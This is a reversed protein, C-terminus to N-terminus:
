EFPKVLMSGKIICQCALRIPTQQAYQQAVEAEKKTIAGMEVLTNLEKDEMYTTYKDKDWSDPDVKSEFEAAENPITELEEVRVACSGCMGDTCETPITIGNNTAVRLLVDGQKAVVRKDMGEGFGCFIINVM